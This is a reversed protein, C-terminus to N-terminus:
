EVRARSLSSDYEVRVTNEDGPTIASSSVSQAGSSDFYGVVVENFTSLLIYIGGDPVTGKRSNCIWASGNPNSGVEQFTVELTHDAIIDVAPISAIDVGGQDAGVRLGNGVTVGAAGSTTLTANGKLDLEDDTFPFYHEVDSWFEDCLGVSDFPAGVSDGVSDFGDSDGVSDTFGPYQLRIQPYQWSDYGDRRSKVGLLIETTGEPPESYNSDFVGSDIDFTYENDSGVNVDLFKLEYEVPSRPTDEISADYLTWTNGLVGDSLSGDFSIVTEVTDWEPDNIAGEPFPLDPVGIDGYILNNSDAQVGRVTGVSIRL